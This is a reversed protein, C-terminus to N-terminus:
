LFGLLKFGWLHYRTKRFKTTFMVMLLLNFLSRWFGSLLDVRHLRELEAVCRFFVTLWGYFWLTTTKESGYEIMFVRRQVELLSAHRISSLPFLSEIIICWDLCGTLRWIIREIRRRWEPLALTKRVLLVVSVSRIIVYECWRLYIILSLIFLFSFFHLGLFTDSLSMIWQNGLMLGDQLLLAIWM